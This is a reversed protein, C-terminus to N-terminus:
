NRSTAIVVLSIVKKCDPLADSGVQTSKDLHLTRKMTVPGTKQDVMVSTQVDAIVINKVTNRVEVDCALPNNDGLSTVKYRYQISDSQQANRWPLWRGDAAGGTSVLLFSSVAVLRICLNM